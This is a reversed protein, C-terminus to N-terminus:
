SKAKKWLSNVGGDVTEGREWSVALGVEGHGGPGCAWMQGPQAARM